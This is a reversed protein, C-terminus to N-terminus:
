EGDAVCVCVCVCVCVVREWPSVEPNGCNYFTAVDALTNWYGKIGVSAIATPQWCSVNQGAKFTSPVQKSAGDCGGGERQDMEIAASTYSVSLDATKSFSYTYVDVCYAGNKSSRLDAKHAATWITAGGTVTTFDVAPDYRAAVTNENVGMPLFALGTVALLGSLLGIGTLIKKKSTEM